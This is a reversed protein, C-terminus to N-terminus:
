ARTHGMNFTRCRTAPASSASTQDCDHYMRVMKGLTNKETGLSIGDHYIRPPSLLADGGTVHVGIRLSYTASECAYSVFGDVLWCACFASAHSSKRMDSVSPATNMDQSGPRLSHFTNMPGM